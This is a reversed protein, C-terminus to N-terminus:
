GTINCQYIASSHNLDPDTLSFPLSKSWITCTDRGEERRGERGDKEEGEKRGREKSERVFTRLPLFEPFGALV